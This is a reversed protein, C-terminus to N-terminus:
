LLFVLNLVPMFPAPRGTVGPYGKNRWCDMRQKGYNRSRIRAVMM